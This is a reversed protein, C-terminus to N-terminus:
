DMAELTELLEIWEKTTITRHDHDKEEVKEQM